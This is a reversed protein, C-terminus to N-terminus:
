PTGKVSFAVAGAVYALIAGVVPTAFMAFVQWRRNGAERERESQEQARASALTSEATVRATTEAALAVDLRTLDRQMVDFKENVRAQEQLFSDRTVLNDLRANVGVFEERVNQLVFTVWPPIEGEAM